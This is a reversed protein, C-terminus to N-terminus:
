ALHEKSGWEMPLTCIPHCRACNGIIGINKKRINTYYAWTFNGAPKKHKHKKKKKHSNIWLELDKANLLM